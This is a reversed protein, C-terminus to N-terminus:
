VVGGDPVCAQHVPLASSRFSDRVVTPGPRRRLDGDRGVGPVVDLGAVVEEVGLVRGVAPSQCRVPLARRRTTSRGTSSGASSRRRRRRPRRQEAEAVLGVAAHVQRAGEEVVDADVAGDVVDLGTRPQVAVPSHFILSRCPSCVDGLVVVQDLVPLVGAVVVRQAGPRVLEALGVGARVPHLEELELVAHQDPVDVVRDLVVVGRLVRAGAQRQRHVGARRLEGVRVARRRAVTALRQVRGEAELGAVLRAQM